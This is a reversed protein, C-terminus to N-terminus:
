SDINGDHTLFDDLEMHTTDDEGKEYVLNTETNKGDQKLSQKYLEVLYKPIRCTHFWHGNGGCRDCVNTVNGNPKKMNTIMRGKRSETLIQTRLLFVEVEVEVLAVYMDMDMDMEVDVDVDVDMVVVM